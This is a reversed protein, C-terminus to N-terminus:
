TQSTFHGQNESLPRHLYFINNHIIKIINNYIFAHINFHLKFHLANYICVYLYLIFVCCLLHIIFTFIKYLHIDNLNQRLIYLNLM